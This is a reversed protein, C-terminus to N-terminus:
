VSMEEFSFVRGDPEGTGLLLAASSELCGSTPGMADRQLEALWDVIVQAAQDMEELGSLIEPPITRFREHCRRLEDLAQAVHFRAKGLYMRKLENGVHPNRAMGRLASPSARVAGRAQPGRRQTM